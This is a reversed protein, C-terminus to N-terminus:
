PLLPPFLKCTFSIKLRKKTILHRYEIGSEFEIIEPSSIFQSNSLFNEFTQLTALFKGLPIPHLPM